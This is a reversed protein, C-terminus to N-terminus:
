GCRAAARALEERVTDDGEQQAARELMRKDPEGNTACGDTKRMMVIPIVIIIVVINVIVMMMPM